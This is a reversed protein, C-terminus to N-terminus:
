LDRPQLKDSDKRNLNVVEPWHQQELRWFATNHPIHRDNWEKQKREMEGNLQEREIEHNRLEEV